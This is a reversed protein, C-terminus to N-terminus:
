LWRAPIWEDPLLYDIWRVQVDEGNQGHALIKGRRTVEGPLAIRIIAGVKPLQEPADAM